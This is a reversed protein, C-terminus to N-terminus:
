LSRGMRFDLYLSVWHRISSMQSMYCLLKFTQIVQTNRSIKLHVIWIIKSRISLLDIFTWQGVCEKHFCFSGVFGHGTSSSWWGEQALSSSFVQPVSALWILRFSYFEKFLHSSVQLLLKLSLPILCYLNDPISWPLSGGAYDIGYQLGWFFFLLERVFCICTM